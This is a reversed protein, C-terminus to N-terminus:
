CLKRWIREVALGNVIRQAHLKVSDIEAQSIQSSYIQLNELKDQLWPTIEIIEPKASGINKYIEIEISNLEQWSAYPIDEYFIIETDYDAQWSLVAKNVLIHDIHNGIGLPTWLRTLNTQASLFSQIVQIIEIADTEQQYNTVQFISEFDLYGRQTTDKLGLGIHHLGVKNSYAIDEAFRIASAQDVTAKTNVFPIYSSQQFVTGLTANKLYGSLLIGGISLAIDDADPSLLLEMSNAVINTM